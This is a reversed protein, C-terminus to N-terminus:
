DDEVIWRMLHNPHIQQEPFWISKTKKTLKQGVLKEFKEYDEKTEFKVRLEKYANNDEQEFEPMGVWHEEWAEAQDDVGLFQSLSGKKEVKAKKGVFNDYDDSM